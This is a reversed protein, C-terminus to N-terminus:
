SRRTGRPISPELFRFHDEITMWKPCNWVTRSTASSVGCTPGASRRISALVTATGSTPLHFGVLIRLLTSKGIGNRGLLATVSGTPVDLDIGDLVRKKGFRMTLGRTEVSNSM